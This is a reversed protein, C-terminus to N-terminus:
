LYEKYVEKLLGEFEEKDVGFVINANSVMLADAAGQKVQLDGAEPISIMCTRKEETVFAKIHGILGDKDEVWRAVKDMKEKLIAVGDEYAGPIRCKVTGIIANDHTSM